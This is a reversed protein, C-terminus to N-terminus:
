RAKIAKCVELRGMSGKPSYLFLLSMRPSHHKRSLFFFFIKLGKTLSHWTSPKVCVFKQLLRSLPKHHNFASIGEEDRDLQEKGCSPEEALGEFNPQPKHM